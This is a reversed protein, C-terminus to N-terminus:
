LKAPPKTSYADRTAGTKSRPMPIQHLFVKGEDLLQQKIRSWEGGRSEVGARHRWDESSLPKSGLAPTAEELVVLARERRAVKAKEAPTRREATVTVDGLGDALICTTQEPPAGPIPMGSQLTLSFTAFAEIVSSKTCSVTVPRQPGPESVLESKMMMSAAARFANSGKERSEDWGSHHIVVRAPLSSFAAGEASAAKAAESERVLGQERSSVLGLCFADLARLFGSVAAGDSGDGEILQTLTEAVVLVVSPWGRKRIQEQISKGHQWDFVLRQPVVVVHAQPQGLYARAASIRRRVDGAREAAVYVVSGHERVAHGHWETLAPCGVHVALDVAIFSKASEPPGWIGALDGAPLIDDVLYIPAAPDADGDFLLPVVPLLAKAKAASSRVRQLSQQRPPEPEATLMEDPSPPDPPPLDRLRADDRFDDPADDAGRAVIETPQLDHDTQRASSNAVGPASEEEPSHAPEITPQM